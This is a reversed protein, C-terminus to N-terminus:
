VRFQGLIVSKPCKLTYVSTKRAVQEWTCHFTLFWQRLWYIEVVGPTVLLDGCCRDDCAPGPALRAAALLHVHRARAKQLGQWAPLGILM